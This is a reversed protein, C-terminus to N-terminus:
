KKFIAKVEGADRFRIVNFVHLGVNGLGNNNLNLPAM